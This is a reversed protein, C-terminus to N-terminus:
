RERQTPARLLATECPPDLIGQAEYAIGTRRYITAQAARQFESAV